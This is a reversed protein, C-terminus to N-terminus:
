IGDYNGEECLTPNNKSIMFIDYFNSLFYSMPFLIFHIYYIENILYFWINKYYRLKEHNFSVCLITEVEADIYLDCNRESLIYIHYLIYFNECTKGLKFM